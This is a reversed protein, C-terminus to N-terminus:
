SPSARLRMIKLQSSRKDRFISVEPVVLADIKKAGLDEFKRCLEEFGFGIASGGQLEWKVHRDKLVRREKL